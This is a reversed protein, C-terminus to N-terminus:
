RGPLADRAAMRVSVIGDQALKNLLDESTHPHRAVLYREEWYASIAFPEIITAPLAAYYQFVVRRAWDPLNSSAILQQLKGNLLVFFSRRNDRVMTPHNFIRLWFERDTPRLANELVDLPTHPNSALAYWIDREGEQALERLVDPPTRKHAAVAVHVSRDGRQALQTLMESSLRPNRALSRWVSTEGAQRLQEFLSMPTRPNAALAARVVPSADQVLQNASQESLCANGALRARVVEVTDNLLFSQLIVPLRPNGAVAARVAAQNDIALTALLDQPAHLNRAVATRVTVAPDGALQALLTKALLPLAALSARVTREEDRAMIEHDEGTLSVHAVAACRVSAQSDTLLISIIETSTHSNSAVARRIEPHSSTALRSLIKASTHPHRAVQSRVLPSKEQALQTLTKGGVRMGSSLMRGTLQESSRAAQVWQEKLMPVAHPVLLGFLLFTELEDEASLTVPKAVALLDRKMEAQLAAKWTGRTNSSSFLEAPRNSANVQIVHLGLLNWIAAQNRQYRSDIKLQQFWPLPLNEFRLLSAWALFPLEKIFEPKVMNLMPLVPNRLFEEPFEGVLQGLVPLSTNPNLVVARRVEVESERALQALVSPPTAPNGAILLLLDSFRSLEELRKGPTNMDAAETFASFPPLTDDM